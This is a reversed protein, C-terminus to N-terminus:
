TPATSPGWRRGRFRTKTPVDTMEGAGMFGAPRMSFVCGLLGHCFQKDTARATWPRHLRTTSCTPAPDPAGFRIPARFRATLRWFGSLAGILAAVLARVRGQLSRPTGVGSLQRMLFGLNLGSAHVLLRKLINTHGRLYLRRMGGTEYLHANPRELREGRQRLLRKGRPAGFVGGTAMCPLGRRRNGRWRRRGRDPESVYSRLGLDALAVLTENSHYGKDGVM